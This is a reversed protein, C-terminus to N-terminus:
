KCTYGSKEAAAKVEKIDSNANAVGDLDYKALANESAKNLDIDISVKYTHQDANNQTTIKVGEENSEPYKSDLIGVFMDWNNKIADTIAKSDVSVKMNTVKKGQFKISIEQTMDLGSSTESKTCTLTKSGCGTLVLVAVLSCALIKFKKL